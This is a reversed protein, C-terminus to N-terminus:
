VHTNEKGLDVKPEVVGCVLIAGLASLDLEPIRKTKDRNTYITENAAELIRRFVPYAIACNRGNAFKILVLNENSASAEADLIDRITYIAEKTM